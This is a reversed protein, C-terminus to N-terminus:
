LARAARTGELLADHVRRPSLADGILVREIPWDEIARYLEDNACGGCAVVVADAPLLQTDGTLVHRVQVGERLVACAETLPSLTVGQRLLRELVIPKQTDDIAEGVLYHRTIVEVACGRGALFDATTPGSMHPDDAIVVVRGRLTVRELLVEHASVVRAEAAISIPPIRPRSGTAAIVADPNLTRVLDPTATTELLVEVGAKEVQRALWAAIGLFEARGPARAASRVQGGLEADQEVLVVDHGRRAAVRAAEMGGPGAGIVVVRKRRAAPRIEALEAERGIVPNQVCEIPLGMYLRGICGENAGVCLRIDDLHGEMTKRPMDPDAIIARTMGVLDAIGRRLVDEAEAPHVIRGAYIVPVRLAQKYPSVLDLYVGHPFYSSPVHRARGRLGKVTGATVSFFDVANLADLMLAVELREAPDLEGELFDEASVRVGVVFDRGVAERVAMVIERLLRARNELSGGYEDRRRNVSPSLFEDPLMDGFFALEAGDFGGKQTRLAALAYADVIERIEAISLAHPIEWTRENPVDSPSVSTRRSALSSMRRGRHVLQCTVLAGFQHIEVAIRQFFPVISDDLNQINGAGGPSSLHVSTTGFAQVLGAGGKAKEVHYRLYRDTPYGGSGFHADHSTSVIRNKVEAHGIGLPSFLLPFRPHMSKKNKV